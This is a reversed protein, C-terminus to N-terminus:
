PLNGTKKIEAVNNQLRVFIKSNMVKSKGSYVVANM